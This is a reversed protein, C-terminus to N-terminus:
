RSRSTSRRSPRPTRLSRRRQCTLVLFDGWARHEADVEARIVRAIAKADEVAVEPRPVGDPVVLQRVGTRRDGPERVPDLRDFAPQQPTARKPFFRPFVTNAWDCLAPRARFSTTLAM